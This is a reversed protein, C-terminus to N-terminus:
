GELSIEKGLCLLLIVMFPCFSRTGVPKGVSMRKPLQFDNGRPKIVSGGVMKNPSPPDFSDHAMLFVASRNGM